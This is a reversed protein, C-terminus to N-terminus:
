DELKGGGISFKSQEAPLLKDFDARKMTNGTNPKGGGGQAGSGSQAKAKLIHDKKPHSEVLISLSEEFDALEGPKVRSYLQNGANDLSVVKGNEIKFHRGFYAEAMEPMEGLITNKKLFESSAFKNSVELKYIHADKEKIIKDKETITAIHPQVQAEIIKKISEDDMVKKGEISSAFAMAKVAAAPDPIDKYLALKETADKAALRHGKAENNLEGIKIMAGPADFEVEQGNDHIYVPKGNQVVAVEVEKGDIMVKVLKLKM